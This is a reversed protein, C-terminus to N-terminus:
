GGPVRVVTTRALTRALAESRGAQGSPLVVQITLARGGAFSVAVVRTREYLRYDQRVLRGPTGGVRLSSVSVRPATRDGASSGTLPAVVQQLNRAETPAWLVSAVELGRGDRLVVQHIDGSLNTKATYGDPVLVSMDGALQRGPGDPLPKVPTTPPRPATTTTPTTSTGGGPRIPENTPRMSAVVVVGVIVLLALAGAIILRARM